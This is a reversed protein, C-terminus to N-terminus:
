SIRTGETAEALGDAAEEGMKAFTPRLLPTTLKGLGKPTLAAAYTIVSGSDSPTITITDDSRVLWHEGVAAVRHAPEFETVEYRLVLAGAKLDYTSGEGPGDGGVQEASKTGPDWDPFNRLDSLYAFSREVPWPTEITTTFSIM